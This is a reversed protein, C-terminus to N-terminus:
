AFSVHNIGIRQHNSGSDPLMQGIELTSEWDQLVRPDKTQRAAIVTKPQDNWLGGPDCDELFHGLLLSPAVEFILNGGSFSKSGSVDSPQM